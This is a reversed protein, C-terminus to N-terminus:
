DDEDSGLFGKAQADGIWGEDVGANKGPCTSLYDEQTRFWKMVRSLLWGALLVALRTAVIVCGIENGFFIIQTM